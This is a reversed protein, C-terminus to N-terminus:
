RHADAPALSGRALLREVQQWLERAARAWTFRAAQRKGRERLEERLGPDNMVRGIQVALSAPDQPDFYLAADGCVERISGASSAIVPCGCAMAELPPLGFGEYLSPFVFCGASEYLARLEADPVYGLRKFGVVRPAGDSGFVAANADGAVAFDFGSAPLLQMAADVVAFNKHRSMSGVALVYAQPRLGHTRLVSQDPEVHHVHDGGESVVHIERGPPCCYRALEAKSFASVTTIAAARHALVRFSIRYWTRFLFSYSGPTAFAGADHLTVLQARKV